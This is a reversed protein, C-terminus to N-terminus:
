DHNDENEKLKLDLEYGFLDAIRALTLINCGQNGELMKKLNNFEAIAYKSKIFEFPRQRRISLERAFTDKVLKVAKREPETWVKNTSM